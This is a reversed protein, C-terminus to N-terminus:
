CRGYLSAKNWDDPAQEGVLGAETSYVGDKEQERCSGYHYM